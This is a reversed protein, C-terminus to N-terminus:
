KPKVPIGGSMEPIVSASGKEQLKQLIAERRGLLTEPLQDYYQPHSFVAPVPNLLDGLKAKYREAAALIALDEMGDRLVKLRLSPLVPGDADRPPYVLFGNGHHTGGYPYVYNSSADSLALTQWFDKAFVNWESNGSWIYVGKAGYYRSMWLALRHELAPNDIEMNPAQVLPARMQFNIPLHCYYHWLIPAKPLKFSRPDYKSSSLDTMVIDTARAISPSLEGALFIKLGPFQQHMQEAYPINTKLLTAEDAEDM